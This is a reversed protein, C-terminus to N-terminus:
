PQPTGVCPLDELPVVVKRGDSSGSVRGRVVRDVVAQVGVLADPLLTINGYFVETNVLLHTGGAAVEPGGLVSAVLWSHLEGLYVLHGVDGLSTAGGVSAGVGLRYSRPEGVSGGCERGLM